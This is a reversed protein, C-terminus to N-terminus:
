GDEDGASVAATRGPYARHEGGAAFCAIDAFREVNEMTGAHQVDGGPVPIGVDAVLVLGFIQGGQALSQM